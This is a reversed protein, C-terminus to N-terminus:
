LLKFIDKIVFSRESFCWACIVNKGSKFIENMAPMNYGTAMGGADLGTIVNQINVVQVNSYNQFSALDELYFDYGPPPGMFSLQGATGGHTGSLVIYQQNPDINLSAVGNATVPDASVTIEGGYPNKYNYFHNTSQDNLLNRDIASDAGPQYDSLFSIHTGNVFDGGSGTTINHMAIKAQQPTIHHISNFLSGASYALNSVTSVINLGKKWAQFTPDDIECWIDIVNMTTAAVTSVVAVVAVAGSIAAAAGASLGLSGLLFILAGGGSAVVAAIALVAGAVVLITDIIQKHEEYFKVLGDWGKKLTDKTWNWAAELGEAFDEGRDCLWDWAKELHSRDDTPPPTPRLWPHMQYFSEKNQRVQTAVQQDVRIALDLFDNTKQAVQQAAEKRATETAIRDSIYDFADGLDGVGGSLSATAKTVAQFSSIIKETDSVFSNLNHQLELIALGGSLGGANLEIHM